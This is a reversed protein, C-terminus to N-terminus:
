QQEDIKIGTFRSIRRHKQNMKYGSQGINEKTEGHVWLLWWDLPNHCFIKGVSPATKTQVPWAPKTTWEELSANMRRLFFMEFDCRRVNIPMWILRYRKSVSKIARIPAWLTDCILRSPYSAFSRSIRNQSPRLFAFIHAFLNAPPETFSEGSRGNKHCRWVADTCEIM